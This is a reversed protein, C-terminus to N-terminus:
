SKLWMTAQLLETFVGTREEVEHSVSEYRMAQILAERNRVVYAVRRAVLKHPHAKEMALVRENHDADLEIGVLTRGDFLTSHGSRVGPDNLIRELYEYFDQSTVHGSVEVHILAGGEKLTYAVPM